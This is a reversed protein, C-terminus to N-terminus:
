RETEPRSIARRPRPQSQNSQSHFNLKAGFNGRERWGLYFSCRKREYSVFPLLIIHKRAVAFDWGGNPNSNRGPHRGSRHFTKDALGIVYFNFNHLPNRFRWKTERCKDEPLYWAPPIPDDNNALWWVPNLKDYFHIEPLGPPPNVKITHWRPANPDAAPRKMPTATTAFPNKQARAPVESAALCLLFALIIGATKPMDLNLWLDSPTSIGFDLRWRCSLSQM